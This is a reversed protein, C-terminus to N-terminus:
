FTIGLNINIGLVYICYEYISSNSQVTREISNQKEIDQCEWLCAIMNVKNGTNACDHRKSYIIQCYYDSSVNSFICFLLNFSGM